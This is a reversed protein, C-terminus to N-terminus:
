RNSKRVTQKVVVDHLETIKEELKFHLSSEKGSIVMVSSITGAKYGIVSATFSWRGPTIHQFEFEGNNNTICGILPNSEQVVVAVGILPNGTFADVVTGRVTQGNNQSYISVSLITIFLFLLGFRKM